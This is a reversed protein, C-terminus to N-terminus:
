REVGMVTEADRLAYWFKTFGLGMVLGFALTFIAVAILYFPINNKPKNM